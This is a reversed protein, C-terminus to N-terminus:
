VFRGSQRAAVRSVINDGPAVATEAKLAERFEVVSQLLADLYHDSEPATKLHTLHLELECQYHVGQSLTPNPDLIEAALLLPAM